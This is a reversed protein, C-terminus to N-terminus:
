LDTEDKELEQLNDCACNPCYPFDLDQKFRYECENCQYKLMEPQRDVFVKELSVRVLDDKKLDLLKVVNSPIHLSMSGGIKKVEVTFEEKQKGLPIIM